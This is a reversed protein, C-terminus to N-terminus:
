QPRQGARDVVGRRVYVADAIVTHPPVLRARAPPPSPMAEREALLESTEPDFLLETRTGQEPRAVAVAARGLARM